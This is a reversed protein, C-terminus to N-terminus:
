RRLMEEGISAIGGLHDAATRIEDGFERLRQYTTPLVITASQELGFPGKRDDTVDDALFVV